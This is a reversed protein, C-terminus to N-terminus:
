FRRWHTSSTPFAVRRRPTCSSFFWRTLARLPVFSLFRFVILARRHVLHPEQTGDGSFNALSLTSAINDARSAM